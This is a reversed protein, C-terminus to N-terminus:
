RFIKDWQKFLNEGSRMIRNVENMDYDYVTKPLHYWSEKTHKRLDGLLFSSLVHKAYSEQGVRSFSFEHFLKAANPHPANKPIAQAYPIVVRPEPYAFHVPAGRSYRMYMGGDSAILGLALEGSGVADTMASTGQYLNPKLEAIKKWFDIGYEKYLLYWPAQVSGGSQIVVMGTKKGKWYPDALGKWTRLRKTAEEDPVLNSNWAVATQSYGIPYWFGSRKRHEPYEADSTIKYQMLLGEKLVKDVAAVDTHQWIDAIYKKARMEGTFKQFLRGGSSFFEQVEIFPFRKKFEEILSTTGEVLSLHYFMLKGEAKAGKLIEYSVGPMERKLIEASKQLEVDTAESSSLGWLSSGAMIFVVFWISFAFRKKM